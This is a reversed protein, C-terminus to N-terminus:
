ESYLLHGGWQGRGEHTHLATQRSLPLVLEGRDTGMCPRSRGQEDQFYVGDNIATAFTSEVNKCLAPLFSHGIHRRRVIIYM